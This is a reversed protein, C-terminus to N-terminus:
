HSDFTILDVGSRPRNSCAEERSRPIIPCSEELCESWVTDWFRDATINRQELPAKREIHPNLTDVIGRNAAWHFASLGTSTGAAPDAGRTLLFDVVSTRGLFDIDILALEFRSLKRPWDEAFM